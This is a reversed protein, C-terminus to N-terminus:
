EDKLDILTSIIRSTSEGNFIISDLKKSVFSVYIAGEHANFKAIKPIVEKLSNLLKLNSLAGQHFSFGVYDMEEREANFEKITKELQISDEYRDLLKELKIDM